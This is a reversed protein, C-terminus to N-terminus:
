HSCPHWQLFVRIMGCNLLETQIHLQQIQNEHKLSLLKLGGTDLKMLQFLSEKRVNLYFALRRVFQLKWELQLRQLVGEAEACSSLMCLTISILKLSTKQSKIVSSDQIFQM